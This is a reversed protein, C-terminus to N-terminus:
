QSLDGNQKATLGQEWEWIWTIVSSSWRQVMPIKNPIANLILILKSFDTDTNIERM